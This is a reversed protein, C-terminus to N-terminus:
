GRKIINLKLVNKPCVNECESCNICDYSEISGNKLEHMVDISMPCAKNCKSCSICEDPNSQIRMQPLNLKDGIWSGAVLFPSMWCISHCAGRKGIVLTLIVLTFLVAYYTIFKLPEDVSVISETMYFPSITLKTSVMFGILLASGWVGFLTYRIIRLRKRNVNRPNIRESYDAIASVPCLYSCWTRRFFVATIFLTVFLLVSGAIVGDFAATVSVYPSFYNLTLPFVLLAIFAMTRRIQLKNV